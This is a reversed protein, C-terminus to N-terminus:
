WSPPLAQWGMIGLALLLWPWRTFAGPMGKIQLHRWSLALVSFKRRCGEWATTGVPLLSFAGWSHSPDQHNHGVSTIARSTGCGLSWHSHRCKQLLQNWNNRSKNWNTQWVFLEHQSLFQGEEAQLPHSPVTIQTNSLFYISLSPIRTRSAWM